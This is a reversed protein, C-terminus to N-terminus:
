RRRVAALAAARMRALIKRVAIVLVPHLVRQRPDVIAAVGGDIIARHVVVGHGIVNLVDRRLRPHISQVVAATMGPHDSPGPGSDRSEPNSAVADGRFSPMPSPATIAPSEAFFSNTPGLNRRIRWCNPSDCVWIASPSPM